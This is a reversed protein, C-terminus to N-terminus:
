GMGQGALLPIQAALSSTLTRNTDWAFGFSISKTSIFSSCYFRIEFNEGIRPLRPITKYLISPYTKLSSNKVRIEVDPPDGHNRIAMIDNEVLTEM